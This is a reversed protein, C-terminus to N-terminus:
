KMGGNWCWRGCGQGPWSIPAFMGAPGFGVVIPPHSLPELKPPEMEPLPPQYRVRPSHLRRALAEEGEELSLQVSYIFRMERQKRADLSRKYVRAFKVQEKRLRCLDLARDVAQQEPATLPLKIDTIFLPM